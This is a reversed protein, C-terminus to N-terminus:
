DSMGTWLDVGHTWNKPLTCKTHFQSLIAKRKQNRKHHLNREIQILSGWASGFLVLSAYSASSEGRLAGSM